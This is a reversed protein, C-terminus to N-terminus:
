GKPRAIDIGVTAAREDHAASRNIRAGVDRERLLQGRLGAGIQPTVGLLVTADDNGRGQVPRQRLRRNRDVHNGGRSTGETVLELPADAVEDATQELLLFPTVSVPWTSSSPPSPRTITAAAAPHFSRTSSRTCKTPSPHGCATPKWRKARLATTKRMSSPASAPSTTGASFGSVTCRSCAAPPSGGSCRKVCKRLISM